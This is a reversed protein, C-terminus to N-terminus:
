SAPEETPESVDGSSPLVPGRLAIVIASVLGRIATSVAGIFVPIYLWSMPMRLAPSKILGQTQILHWAENMLALGVLAVVLFSVSQIIRLPGPRVVTDVIELAIHGHETVLVGSVAFTAWVLSFRALEGTWPFGDFPLYRQAAQTFVLVLVLALAVAAILLEIRTVITIIRDLVLRSQSSGSESIM